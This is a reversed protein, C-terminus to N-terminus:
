SEKNTVCQHCSHRICTACMDSVAKVTADLWDADGARIQLMTALRTMASVHRSVADTSAEKARLRLVEALLVPVDVCMEHSHEDHSEIIEQLKKESLPEMNRMVHFRWDKPVSM